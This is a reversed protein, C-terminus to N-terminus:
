GNALEGKWPTRRLLGLITNSAQEKVNPHNAGGEAVWSRMVRSWLLPYQAPTLQEQCVACFTLDMQTGSKLVFRLRWADELPDLVQRSRATGPDITKVEFVPKDCVTCAGIVKPTTM